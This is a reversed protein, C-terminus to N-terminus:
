ENVFPLLGSGTFSRGLLVFDNPVLVSGIEELVFFWGVGLEVCPCVIKHKWVEASVFGIIMEGAYVLNFVVYLLLEGAFNCM